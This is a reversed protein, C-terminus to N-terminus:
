APTHNKPFLNCASFTLIYVIWHLAAKLCDLCGSDGEEAVQVPLNEAGQHRQLSSQDVLASPPLSRNEVPPFVQPLLSTEPTTSSINTMM